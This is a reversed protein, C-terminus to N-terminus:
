LTPPSGMRNLSAFTGVAPERDRRTVDIWIARGSETVQPYVRDSVRIMADLFNFIRTYGFTRGDARVLGGILLEERAGPMKMLAQGTRFEANIGSAGVDAGPTRLFARAKQAFPEDLFAPGLLRCALEYVIKVLCPECSRTEVKYPLTIVGRMVEDAVRVTTDSRGRERLAAEIRPINKADRPDVVLERGNATPWETTKRHMYEGDWTFSTRVGREVLVGGKAFPVPVKGTKGTLGFKKRFGLIAFHDTLAVDASSGLTDNCAKCLDHYRLTGGIAEPFVHEASRSAGDVTEACIVCRFPASLDPKPSKQQKKKRKM